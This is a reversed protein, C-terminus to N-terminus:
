PFDGHLGAGDTQKKNERQGNGCVDATMSVFVGTGSESREFDVFMAMHVVRVVAVVVPVVVGGFFADCRV